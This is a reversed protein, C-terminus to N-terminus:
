LMNGDSARLVYVPTTTNPLTDDYLLVNGQDVLIRMADAISDQLAILRTRWLVLGDSIRISVLTGGQQLLYAIGDHFAFITGLGGNTDYSWLKHGDSGRLAILSKRKATSLYIVGDTEAQVWSGQPLQYTWLRQGDPLHFAQITAAIPPPLVYLMQGEIRPAVQYNDISVQYTGNLYGTTAQIMYIMNSANQIYLTNNNYLFPLGPPNITKPITIQANAFSSPLLASASRPLADHWIVKGTNTDLAEMETKTLSTDFYCYLMQGEADISATNPLSTHWRVDGTTAQYATLIHNTDQIFVMEPTTTASLFEPPLTKVVDPITPTPWQWQLLVAGLLILILTGSLGYRIWPVKLSKRTLGIIQTIRRQQPSDPAELDIIQVEQDDSSNTNQGDIDNM